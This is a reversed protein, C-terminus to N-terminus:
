AHSLPTPLRSYEYDNVLRDYMRTIEENKHKIQGIHYQLAAVIEADNDTDKSYREIDMNIKLLDKKM